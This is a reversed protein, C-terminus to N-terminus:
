ITLTFSCKLWWCTKTKVLTSRANRDFELRIVPQFERHIQSTKGLHPVERRHGQFDGKAQRLHLQAPHSPVRLPHCGIVRPLQSQTPPQWGHLLGHLHVFVTPGFLNNDGSTAFSMRNAEFESHPLTFHCMRFQITDAILLNLEILSDDIMEFLPWSFTHIAECKSHSNSNLILPM